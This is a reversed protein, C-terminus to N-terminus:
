PNDIMDIIEKARPDLEACEDCCFWRGGLYPKDAKLFVKECTALSCKESYSKNYLNYCLETCFTKEVM